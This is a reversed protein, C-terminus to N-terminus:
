DDGHNKKPCDRSRHGQEQCRFCLGKEYCRQKEQESLRDVEMANPDHNSNFRPKKSQNKKSRDPGGGYLNQLTKLEKFNAQKTIAKKILAANTTPLEDNMVSRRLGPNMGGLFFQRFTNVETIGARGAYLKFFSIYDTLSNCDSQKLKMLSQTMDWMESTRRVEPISRLEWSKYIKRLGKGYETTGNRETNVNRETYLKTEIVRWEM